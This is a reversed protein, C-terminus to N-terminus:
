EELLVPYIAWALALAMLDYAALLALWPLADVSTTSAQSGAILAPLTAPLLLVALMGGRRSAGVVTGLVTTIAAVGLTGLLGAPIAGVALQGGLLAAVLLMTGAFTIVLGVWLAALKGGLLAAAPVTARLVDWCGEDHEAAAVSGALVTAVFLVVLWGLGPAVVALVDPRPGFAVGGLVVVALSFPAVVSVQERGAAEVRLERAAVLAGLRWANM